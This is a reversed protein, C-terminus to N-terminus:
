LREVGFIVARRSREAHAGTGPGSGSVHRTARDEREFSARKQRTTGNVIWLVGASDTRHRRSSRGDNWGERTISAFFAVVTSIDWFRPFAGSLPAALHHRHKSEQAQNEGSLRKGVIRDVDPQARSAPPRSACRRVGSPRPAPLLSALELATRTTMDPTPVMTGAGAGDVFSVLDHRLFLGLFRWRGILRRIGNRTLAVDCCPATRSGAVLREDKRLISAAFGM